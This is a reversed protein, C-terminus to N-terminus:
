FVNISSVAIIQDDFIPIFMSFVYYSVQHHITHTLIYLFVYPLIESSVFCVECKLVSNPHILTAKLNLIQLFSLSLLVSDNEKLEKLQREKKM